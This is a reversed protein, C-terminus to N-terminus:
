FASLFAYSFVAAGTLMGLYYLVAAGLIGIADKMDFTGNAM